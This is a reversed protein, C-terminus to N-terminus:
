GCRVSNALRVRICVWILWRKLQCTPGVARNSGCTVWM